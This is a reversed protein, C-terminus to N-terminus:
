LNSLYERLARVEDPLSAADRSWLAFAAQTMAPPGAFGAARAVYNFCQKGECVKWLADGDRVRAYAQVSIALLAKLKGQEEPGYGSAAAIGQIPADPDAILETWSISKAREVAPLAMEPLSRANRAAMAHQLVWAGARKDAAARILELPLLSSRGNQALLTKVTGPHLFLNEVEHVPLIFVNHTGSLEAAEPDSRFDRDIIGGVRISATTQHAIAKIAGLRRIVENCSGCELFRVNEPEGALRRFREREGV